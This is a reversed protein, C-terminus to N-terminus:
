KKQIKWFKTGELSLDYMLGKNNFVFGIIPDRMNNTNIAKGVGFEIVAISGDVGAEWGESDRFEQLAATTMFMVVETKGQGGLQFGFSLATVRYYQVTNHNILLAGEGYEGGIGIGAKIIRPFVLMGAAKQALERSAPVKTYMADVAARVRADLEIKSASWATFPLTAIAVILVKLFSRM